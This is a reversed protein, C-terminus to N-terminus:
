GDLSFYPRDTPRGHRNAYAALQELFLPPPYYWLHDATFWKRTAANKVNAAANTESLPLGSRVWEHRVWDKLSMRVPMGNRDLSDLEVRRTYQVCVETVVPFRRITQGNVNGAIHGKGKDWIHASRYDWGHGDLLPHLTAWSIETGWIWLTTEPLSYESWKAVHPAYWAPLRDATPPDGPFGSVGYPGDVMIVTPRPWSSYRALADGLEFGLGM